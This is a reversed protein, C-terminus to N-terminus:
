RSTSLKLINGEDDAVVRVSRPLTKGDETKVKTNYLLQYKDGPLPKVVPSTGKFEPFQAFVAKSVLSKSKADM